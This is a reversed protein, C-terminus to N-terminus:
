RLLCQFIARPASDIPLILSGRAAATHTVVAGGIVLAEKNALAVTRGREVAALTPLFGVSGVVANVLLDYDIEAALRHLAQEGQWVKIGLTRFAALQEEDPRAGTIAVVRPHHQRALRLLHDVQRHTSLAIVEFREPMSEVIHLANVGISGTSGLIVLKRSHVSGMGAAKISIHRVCVRPM